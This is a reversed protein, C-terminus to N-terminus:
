NKIKNSFNYLINSNRKIKYLIILNISFAL